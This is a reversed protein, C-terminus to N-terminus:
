RWAEASPLGGLSQAIRDAAAIVAEALAPIASSGVVQKLGTVSIAGVVQGARDFISTAVCLVGENDEEDDTAYRREAIRGLEADMAALDTITSPTRRPMGTRQLINLATERSLAALMAKGVGSCHPLERRGLAADFRVAGPADVRGVVVAFGDDLIAVRSTMALLQTLDRLEPMALDALAINAIALDGLRVMTMGLRYRRAMGDGTDAVLGRALLTQLIAYTAAKSLSAGLALDTLRAGERGASAVLELVDLARGLSQVRYSEDTM